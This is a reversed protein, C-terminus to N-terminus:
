REARYRVEGGVITLLVRTARLREEPATLLDESLVTLDALKGVELSGKEGEEGAAFAADLTMARLAEQRTMAQGAVFVSGDAARRTVAAAFTALPDVPEVPVDTGAAVVAGSALLDRWRYSREEARALGLREDVWPADSTCHTPQLSAIVGLAAFRPLDEPAVVQAHEVRWRLARAAVAHRAFLDLVERNARDGIAHVCLRYGHEAALRATEELSTAPDIRAGSRDPQDAYPALLWAGRSGLAGDMYRKIGGVTLFGDGAGAVKVAALHPAIVENTEGLMLWLRLGLEGAEAMERLVAVETLTSGADHFGTLGHALCSASAARARARIADSGQASPLLAVVAAEATELLAGTPAGDPSRVIEGGAPDATAADIGALELALDNVIAAHGSAHNLYVPNAPAALDLADNCPLGRVLNEPSATWKDQHWGRGLIWAGPAARQAAERVMAVVGDWSTATTLDLQALAAGLGLFHGHADVLGPVAVAGALDVVETDPGILREVDAFSGVAVIRQGRTALAEARPREPDLTVISGGRVVLDAPAVAGGPASRLACGLALAAGVCVAPGCAGAMLQAWATTM